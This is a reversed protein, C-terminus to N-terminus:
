ATQFRSQWSPRTRGEFRAAFRRGYPRWLRTPSVAALRAAARDRSLQGVHRPRHNEPSKTLGLWFGGM